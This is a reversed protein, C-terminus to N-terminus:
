SGDLQVEPLHDDGGDPEIGLRRHAERLTFVATDHSCDLARAIEATTLGAHHHLVVALREREALGEIARELTGPEAMAHRPGTDPARRAARSAAVYVFTLPREERRVRAWRAYAQAFGEFTAAEDVGPAAVAMGRRVSESHAALFTEFSEARDGV